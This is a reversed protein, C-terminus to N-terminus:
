TTKTDDKKFHWNIYLRCWNKLKHCASCLVQMNEINDKGEKDLEQIHDHTLTENKGLQEKTRLCFFCFEKDFGHFNCIEKIIKKGTGIRKNRKERNPNSIWHSHKNCHRCIMEGYHPTDPRKKFKLNKSGCWKCKNIEM